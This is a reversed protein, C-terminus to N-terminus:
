IKLLKLLNAVVAAVEARTIPQDPKFTMDQYGSMLKKAYLLEINGKAWHQEIDTFITNSGILKIGKIIEEFPFREGPCNPKKIPSIENHGLIHERDVPITAGYKEKVYQIIYNHLWISAELQKETLQGKTQAYIGEHEISVSYLNPNVKMAKVLRLKSTMIEETTLGNGWAMNEIKVFQHISGDKGVLFHASSVKNGKSTFWNICSSQSGESIHNVIILPVHGQRSSYNTNENGVFNIKM